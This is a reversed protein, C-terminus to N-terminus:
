KMIRFNYNPRKQQTNAIGGKKVPNSATKARMWSTMQSTALAVATCSPVEKDAQMSLVNTALNRWM